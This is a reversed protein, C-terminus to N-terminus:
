GDYRHIRGVILPTDLEGVTLVVRWKARNRCLDLVTSPIVFAAEAGTVVADVSTPDDPDADVTFTVTSGEDFNVPDGVEDTRAVTFARDAGRTVPIVYEAPPAILYDTM